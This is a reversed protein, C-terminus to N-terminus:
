QMMRELFILLIIEIFFVNYISGDDNNPDTAIFSSNLAKTDTVFLLRTKSEGKITFVDYNKGDLKINFRKLTVKTTTQLEIGGQRIEIVDKTGSLSYSHGNINGTERTARYHEINTSFVAPCNRLNSDYLSNYHYDGEAARNWTARGDPDTYKIPNNGAYHYLNCNKPGVIRKQRM